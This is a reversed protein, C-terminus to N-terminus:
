ISFLERVNQDVKQKIEENDLTWLILIKWSNRDRRLRKKSICRIQAIKLLSDHDIWNTKDEPLNVDLRWRSKEQWNDNMLSTIPIVITDEWFKYTSAKYIIAPRIWNFETWINTWFNVAVIKWKNIEIYESDLHNLKIKRNLWRSHSTINQKKSDTNEIFNATLSTNFTETYNECDPDSHLVSVTLDANILRENNETM